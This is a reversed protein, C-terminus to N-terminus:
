LTCPNNSQWVFRKFPDELLYCIQPDFVTFKKLLPTNYSVHVIKEYICFNITQMFIKLVSPVLSEMCRGWLYREDEKQM